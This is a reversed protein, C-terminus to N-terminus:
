ECSEVAFEACEKALQFLLKRAPVQSVDARLTLRFAILGAGEGAEPDLQELREVNFGHDGIMSLVAGLSGPQDPRALRVIVRESPQDCLEHGSVLDFVAPDDDYLIGYQYMRSTEMVKRVVSLYPARRDAPVDQGLRELIQAERDARYITTSGAEQKARVVQVSCDMREMLLARIQPDIRDIGKRADELSM